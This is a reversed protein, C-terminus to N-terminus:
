AGLAPNAEIVDLFLKVARPDFHSGAQSRIHELVRDDPWAARYPRDSRLADWVDVVAFLRAALPIQEARLQRPYGCGDWREHHCYPIDLAPRLYSVPWLLEYAIRPHERMIAEEEPTLPGPKRLIADPIRIKGIDHLLAGRRVHALAEGEIGAARALAVTARTVRATHGHTERDRLELARSWGEITADYALSLELNTRQLDAFLRGADIAMATQGALAEFFSLWSRDADLGAAVDVALVGILEGKAVLPTAYASRTRRGASLWDDPGDEVSHDIAPAAITRGEVAARGWIGRGLPISSTVPPAPFGGEAALTLRNTGRDLTAILVGDVGLQERTEHVVTRVAVRWDTTGLIARDINRLADLRSLQRRLDLEALKHDTVDLSMVFLGERIPQIRLDFWASDGDPYVFRHTTRMVQGTELSTKLVGFVETHEIGPYVEPMTRGLLERIPRRAHRGAAENLYLYRWDPGIIQCGEIMGDLLERFYGAPVSLLDARGPM